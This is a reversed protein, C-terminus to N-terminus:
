ESLNETQRHRLHFSSAIVVANVKAGAFLDVRFINENMSIFSDNAVSLVARTAM